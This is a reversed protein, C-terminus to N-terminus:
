LALAGAIMTGVVILARRQQTANFTMRYGFVIPCNADGVKPKADQWNPDALYSDPRAYPSFACDLFYGLIGFMTVQTLKFLLVPFQHPSLFGLMSLLLATVVIWGSLRPIEHGLAKLTRTILGFLVAFLLFVIAPFFSPLLSM